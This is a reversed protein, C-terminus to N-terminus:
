FHCLFQISDTVSVTLHISEPRCCCEWRGNGWVCVLGKSGLTDSQPLVNAVQALAEAWSLAAAGLPCPLSRVHREGKLLGHLGEWFSGPMLWPQVWPPTDSRQSPRAKETPIFSDSSFRSSCHSKECFSSSSLLSSHTMSPLYFSTEFRSLWSPPAPCAVASHAPRPDAAATHRDGWAKTQHKHRSNPIMVTHTESSCPKEFLCPWLAYNTYM